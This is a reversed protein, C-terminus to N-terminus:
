EPETLWETEALRAPVGTMVTVRARDAVGDALRAAVGTMVTVRARYAV